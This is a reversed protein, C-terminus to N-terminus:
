YRFKKDGSVLGGAFRGSVNGALVAIYDMVLARFFGKSFSRGRIKDYTKQVLCIPLAKMADTFDAMQVFKDEAEAPAPMNLVTELWPQLYQRGGIEWITDAIAFSVTNQGFAKGKNYFKEIAAIHATNWAIELGIHQWDTAVKDVITAVSMQDATSSIEEGSANKLVYGDQDNGSEVTATVNQDQIFVLTENAFTQTKNPM